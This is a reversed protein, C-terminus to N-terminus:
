GDSVQPCPEKRLDRLVRGDMYEPIPMGLISLVTPAIDIIRAGGIDKGEVIEPGQAILIGHDTHGGSNGFTDKVIANSPFGYMGFFEYGEGTRALIDPAKEVYAGQYVEERLHVSRVVKEACDPDTLKELRDIIQSRLADYEQGSEVIGEPERGKVNLKLGGTVGSAFAVTRSWDIDRTSFFFSNLISMRKKPSVRDLTLRESGIRELMAYLNSPSIGLKFLGYRLSSLVRRKVKMFGEEILFLNLNVIRKLSGQGHDSILLVVTNEDALDLVRRLAGDVIKYYDLLPNGYREIDEKIQLPNLPDIFKWFTHEARDTGNDVLMMFDPEKEKWLYEAARIRQYLTEKLDELVVEPNKSTASSFFVDYKGIAAKLERELVAPYTYAFGPPTLMGSVIYGNIRKPPFTAPVNIVACKKGRQSLYEWITPKKVAYSPKMEVTWEYGGKEEKFFDYFGHKGPNCGTAFSPWAPVTAHPITSLLPGHVGNDLLDKFNPLYGEKAWPKILDLTAGDLGFVIVKKGRSNQSNM